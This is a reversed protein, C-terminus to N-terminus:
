SVREGNPGAAVVEPVVQKEFQEFNKRFREVLDRATADYAAPDSWTSRPDLVDDPVGPVQVPVHLGFYPEPQTEVGALKGELIAHVIARTHALSMRHGTGYAGGTWGTNILWVQSKHQALKKGLLDAFVRPHLPLFPAGFCTSFTAQPESGLGRETGAVKATYGSLFHYMAQEATLRAIPPM